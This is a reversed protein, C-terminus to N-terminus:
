GSDDAIETNLHEQAVQAMRAGRQKQRLIHMGLNHLLAKAMGVDAHREICVAM